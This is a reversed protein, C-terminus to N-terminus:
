LEARLTGGDPELRPRTALCVGLDLDSLLPWGGGPEAGDESEPEFAEAPESPDEDNPMASGEREVPPDYGADTVDM